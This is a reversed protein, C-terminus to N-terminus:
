DEGPQNVHPPGNLSFGESPFCFVGSEDVLHTFGPDGDNDGRSTEAVRGADIGVGLMQLDHLNEPGVRSKGCGWLLLFFFFFM